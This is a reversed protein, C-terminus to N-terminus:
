KATRFYIDIADRGLGRPSDIFVHEYYWREPKLGATRIELKVEVQQSAKPGLTGQAPTATIWPVTATITYAATGPGLNTMVFARQATTGVPVEEGLDFQRPGAGHKKEEDSQKLELQPRDPPDKPGGAFLVVALGDTARRAAESPQVLRARVIVPDIAPEGQPATYHGADDVRGNAGGGDVSWSLKAGDAGLVSARLEIEQGPRAQVVCPSVEVQPYDPVTTYLALSRGPLTDVLKEGELIKDSPIVTHQNNDPLTTAAYLHRYLRKQIPPAFALTFEREGAQNLVVLSYDADRRFCAAHLAGGKVTTKLVKSRRPVYRTLLSAAYYVPRPKEMWPVWRWVGWQHLGHDFKDRAHAGRSFSTLHQDSLRWGGIAYAGANASSILALGANLGQEFTDSGGLAFESFWIRGVSGTASARPGLLGSLRTLKETLDFRGSYDHVTAVDYQHAQRVSETGGRNDEVGWVVYDNRIGEKEMRRLAAPYMQPYNYEFENGFTVQTICTFKRVERLYRLLAVLSEAHEEADRIDPRGTYRAAPVALWRRTPQRLKWGFNLGVEVGAAQCMELFRYVSKMRPGNAEFGSYDPAYAHPDDNDNLPEWWNAEFWTRTGQLGIRRIREAEIALWSDNMGRRGLNPSTSERMLQIPDYEAAFSAWWDSREGAPGADVEIKAELSAARTRVLSADDFWAEGKGNLILHMQLETAEAPITFIATFERWGGPGPAVDRPAHVIAVRRGGSLMELALYPGVGGAVEGARAYVGARYEEGMIAPRRFTFSPYTERTGNPSVIHGCAAASRRTATDRPFTAGAAGRLLWGTPTADGEEFGPNPILNREAAGQAGLVPAALAVLFAWAKFLISM